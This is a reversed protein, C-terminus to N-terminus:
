ASSCQDGFDEETDLFWLPCGDYLESCYVDAIYVSAMLDFGFKMYLKDITGGLEYSLMLEVYAIELPIILGTGVEDAEGAEITYDFVDNDVLEDGIVFKINMPEACVNMELDMNITDIHVPPDDDTGNSGIDVQCHATGGVATDECTCESPIFEAMQSCVGAAGVKVQTGNIPPVWQFSSAIDKWADASIPKAMKLGDAADVVNASAGLALFSLLAKIYM